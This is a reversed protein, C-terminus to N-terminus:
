KGMIFALNNKLLLILVLYNKEYIQSSEHSIIFFQSM